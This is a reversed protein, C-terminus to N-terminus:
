VYDRGRIRNLLMKLLSIRSGQKTKSQKNIRLKTQGITEGAGEPIPIFEDCVGTSLAEKVLDKEIPVRKSYKLCFDTDDIRLNCKECISM